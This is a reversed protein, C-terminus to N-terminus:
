QFRKAGRERGEKLQQPTLTKELEELRKAFGEYSSSQRGMWFIGYAEVPDKPFGGAGELYCMGLTYTAPGNLTRIAWFNARNCANAQNRAVQTGTYEAWALVGAASGSVGPSKFAYRLAKEYNGEEWYRLALYGAALQGGLSYPAKEVLGELLGLDRRNAMYVAYPVGEAALQRLREAIENSSIEPLKVRPLASAVRPDADKWRAILNLQNLCYAEAEKNAQRYRCAIEAGYVDSAGLAYETGRPPIRYSLLYAAWHAYTGPDSDFLAYVADYRSANALEAARQDANGSAARVGGLLLGMMVLLLVVGTKDKHKM